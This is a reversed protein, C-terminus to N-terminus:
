QCASIMNIMTLDHSSRPDAGGGIINLKSATKAHTSEADAVM